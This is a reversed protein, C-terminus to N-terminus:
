WKGRVVIGNANSMPAVMVTSDHTKGSSLLWYLLTTAGSASAGVFAWGAVNSFTYADQRAGHLNGCAGANSGGGCVNVGHTAQLLSAQRNADTTKGTALASFVAGVVLATGCATEGALLLAVNSGSARTSQTAAVVPQPQRRRLALVVDSMGGKAGDVLISGYEFGDATAEFVHIGPDVFTAKNLSEPDIPRGDLLGTAGSPIVSLNITAVEKRAEAFRQEVRQRLKDKGSLPFERVAFALHEAADRFQKLELECDGLNAAVDFTKTLEWAKRFEDRAEAWQAQKYLATGREFFDTAQRVSTGQDGQAYVSPGAATAAGLTAFAALSRITRSM